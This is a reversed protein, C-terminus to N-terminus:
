QLLAANKRMGWPDPDGFVQNSNNARRPFSSPFVFEPSWDAESVKGLYGGNVKGVRQGKVKHDPPVISQKSAKSGSAWACSAKYNPHKRWFEHCFNGEGPAPASTKKDAAAATTTNNNSKNNSSM